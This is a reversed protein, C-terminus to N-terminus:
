EGKKEEYVNLHKDKKMKKLLLDFVKKDYTIIKAIMTGQKDSVCITKM